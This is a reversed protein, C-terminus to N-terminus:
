RAMAPQIGARSFIEVARRAMASVSYHERVGTYARQGLTTALAPDRALRALGEALAEPDDKDVLLGGGTKGIIEPFAGKSPQVVPVGAAM